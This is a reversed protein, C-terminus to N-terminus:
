NGKVQACVPSSLSPLSSQHPLSSHRNEGVTSSPRAVRCLSHHRQPCTLCVSPQRPPQSARRVRSSRREEVFKPSARCACPLPSLQTSHTFSTLLPLPNTVSKPLWVQARSVHTSPDLRVCIIVWPISVFTVDNIYLPTRYLISLSNCWVIIRLCCDLLWLQSPSSSRSRERVWRSMRWAGWRAIGRSRTPHSYLLPSSVYTWWEVLQPSYHAHAWWLHSSM